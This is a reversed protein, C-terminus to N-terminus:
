GISSQWFQPIIISFSSLSSPVSSSSSPSSSSFFESNSSGNVVFFLLPKSINSSFSHLTSSLQFLIKPFKIVQKINKKEFRNDEKFFFRKGIWCFRREKSRKKRIQVSETMKNSDMKNQTKMDCRHKKKLNTLKM